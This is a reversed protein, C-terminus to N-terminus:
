QPIKLVDGPHILSFRSKNNLQELEAMTCGVNYAIRWFSDGEQVVYTTYKRNKPVDATVGYQDFTYTTGDIDKKGTVAKGNEYYMWKGSDNLAWGEASDTSIALEVFRKLVASVEARTATGQPDFLNGNKGALIGAMQMSKVADKAWTSIKANDAFTNEAHAKPLTFGIAKVYNQMIVAMQERTISADPAFKGDGIGSVIGNKSAWEVYGMYYSDAKVDSFSSQKYGSVDANALRGLATVFMGRTMSTNPSFKGEATGNLLGRAAVFEISDKAWHNTIDTFSVTATKYGVAFKSFHDTVFRLTQTIPDYVSNPMETLKGNSDIYYAIVNAANEGAGLTYPISVSVKGNGFDTIRKGNTGTISFDYVPRNGVIKKAEASLTSNDVKKATVSIDSNIQKQIEKLTDLDLSIDVIESTIRVEKTKAAVLSDISAKPLNTAINKATTNKTNVKFEVVIGNKTTGNKKAEAQAKSIANDVTDKSVTASVTGNSVTPKVMVTAETSPNPNETSAPPTTITPTSTDGGSSSGGGGGSDGGTSGGGGSSYQTVTLTGTGITINYNKTVAEAFIPATTFVIDFAGAKVTTLPAGNEQPQMDIAEPNSPTLTDSAVSGVVEWTFLPMNENSEITFNEPKVTVAKKAVIVNFVATDQAHTSTEAATATIVASGAGKVTVEGTSANVTAVATNNSAYTIEGDVTTETLANTFAIDGYTKNVNEVAYSINQLQKDTSTVTVTVQYDNYYSAGTVPINVVGTQGATSAPATYTLTTGSVTMDTITITGSGDTPIGYSAGEPLAPLTVTAGTQGAALVTGTATKIGTYDAKNVTVAQTATLGGYGFTVANDGAVFANGNQYTVTIDNHSLTTTAGSTHTATLVLGTKDLTEGHQYTTKTPPTTVTLSTITDEVVTISVTGTVNYYNDTDTPTFTWNYNKAGVTLVQGNDFALLGQNTDTHSLIVVSTTYIPTNVVSVGTIIPTARVVTLSVIREGRQTDDEYVAKVKYMGAGLPKGNADLDGITDPQVNYTYTFTGTGNATGNFTATEHTLANGTYTVTGNAFTIDSSVDVKDVINVTLTALPQSDGQKQAVLGFSGTTAGTAVTIPIGSTDAQAATVGNPMTGTQGWTVSTDMPMDFQDLNKFQYRITSSSETPIKISDSNASLRGGDRYFASDTAVPIYNVAYPYDTLSEGNPLAKLGSGDRNESVYLVNGLSVSNAFLGASIDAGTGAIGIIVGGNITPAVGSGAMFLGYSDGDTSTAEGGIGTLRGGNVTINSNTAYIGYSRGNVAGGTGTVTADDNLIIAGARIGSSANASSGATGMVSGSDSVTLTGSASIGNGATVSSTVSGSGSVTLDSCAIGGIGGVGGATVSGGTVLIENAKITGLSSPANGNTAIIAGDEITLSGDVGIGISVNYVGTTNSGTTDGGVAYLEGSGKITLPAGDMYIGMSYADTADFGDLRNEGNLVLTLPFNAFLASQIVVSSSNATRGIAGNSYNTLTLTGMNNTANYIYTYGSGSVETASDADLATDGLKLILGATNIATLTINKNTVDASVVEFASITDSTYGDKSVEITYREPAVDSITYNGSNDTTVASGVNGSSNKLQVTTGALGSNTSADTVKGSVTYTSTAVLTVDKGTVDASAVNFSPIISTIYGMKSVEITYDGPVIGTFIYAGQANTLGTKVVTGSSNKLHATAGDVNGNADSVTGRVIYSNPPTYAPIDLSYVQSKTGSEDEIQLHVRADNTAINTELRKEQGATSMPTSLILLYAPDPTDVTNIEYGYNGITSPTFKLRIEGESIREVSFNSVTPIIVAVLTIDKGTVDASSVEFSSITGTTYEAKSIQITYDGPAVGSITYGGSNDTTVASGVNGGSSNKLQVTAGELSGNVGTVTGSITYTTTRMQSNSREAACEKCVFQCDLTSEYCEEGHIHTANSGTAEPDGSNQVIDCTLTNTYCDETHQHHECLSSAAITTRSETAFAVTPLMTMVMCVSLLMSGIRKWILKM